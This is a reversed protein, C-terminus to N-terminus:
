SRFYDYSPDLYFNEAEEIEEEEINEEDM